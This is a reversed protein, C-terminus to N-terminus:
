PQEGLKAKFADRERRTAELDFALYQVDLRLQGLAAQVLSLVAKRRTDDKQIVAAAAQVTRDSYNLLLNL